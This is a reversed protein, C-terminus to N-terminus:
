LLIVRNEKIGNFILLKNTLGISGEDINTWKEHSKPTLSRPGRDSGMMVSIIDNKDEEKTFIYKKVTTAEYLIGETQLYADEGEKLLISTAVIPTLGKQEKILTIFARAEEIITLLLKKKQAETKKKSGLFSALCASLFSM